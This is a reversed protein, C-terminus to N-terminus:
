VGFAAAYEEASFGVILTDGDEVIPRKIASPHEILLRMAKEADLDAKEADPLKRFTTGARNVLREWGVQGAWRELRARDIGAAKYDHFAYEVGHADMWARAKKITDCNKIGFMTRM